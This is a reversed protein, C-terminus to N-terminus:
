NGATSVAIRFQLTDTTTGSKNCGNTAASTVVVTAADEGVYSPASIYEYVASTSATAPIVQSVSSNAPSVLVRASSGSPLTYTYTGGTAVKAEVTTSTSTPTVESKNCAALSLFLAAAGFITRLKNM